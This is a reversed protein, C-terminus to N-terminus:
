EYSSLGVVIPILEVIGRDRPWGLKGCMFTLASHDFFQYVANKEPQAQKQTVPNIRTIFSADSSTVVAYGTERATHQRTLSRIVSTPMAAHPHMTWGMGYPSTGGQARNHIGQFIWFGESPHMSCLMGNKINTVPTCGDFVCVKDPSMVLDHTVTDITSVAMDPQQMCSSKTDKLLAVQIGFHAACDALLRCRCVCM